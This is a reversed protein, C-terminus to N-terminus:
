ATLVGEVEPTIWLRDGRFQMAVPELLRRAPMRLEGDATTLFYGYVVERPGDELCEYEVERRSAARPPVAGVETWDGPGLEAAAYGRFTAEVLQRVTDDPSPFIDNVFLRMALPAEIVARLVGAPGTRAM